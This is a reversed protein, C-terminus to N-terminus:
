KDKKNWDCKDRIKNNFYKRRKRRSNKEKKTNQEEVEEEEEIAEGKENNRKKIEFKDTFKYLFFLNFYKISIWSRSLCKFICHQWPLTQHM